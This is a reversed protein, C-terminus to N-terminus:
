VVPHWHHGQGKSAGRFSRWSAFFTRLRRVDDRDIRRTRRGDTAEVHVPVGARECLGELLAPYTKWRRALERLGVRQPTEQQPM